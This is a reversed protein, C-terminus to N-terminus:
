YKYDISVGFTRPEGFETAAATGVFAFSGFLVTQYEKDTLNRGWVTARLVGQSGFANAREVSLGADLLGRSNMVLDDSQNSSTHMEGQYSYNAYGGVTVDGGVPKAYDLGVTYSQKPAFSFDKVFYQTLLQGTDLLVSRSSEGFETDVLGLSAHARLYATLAASIDGEFGKIKSGNIGFFDRDGPTSGTQLSAQYDDIDMYFVASNFTVRRDLFSGKLGIEYSKVKEPEFGIALNQPNASRQSTGGTKYGSVYKAYLNIADTLDYAISASPNFKSFNKAYNAGATVGNPVCPQQAFIFNVFFRACDAPTFGGLAAFSISNENIRFAAREDKSYRGGVTLHLREAAAPTWTLEGFAAYSKDNISTFDQGRPGLSNAVINVNADDRYYYLGLVYSLKGASIKPDGLLQLEQSFTNFKTFAENRAISGPAGLPAVLAFSPVARLETVASFLPLNDQYVKSDVQRYASISRLTMTESARWNLTLAHGSVTSDNPRYDFPSKLSTPRSSSFPFNTYTTDAALLIPGPILPLTFPPSLPYVGNGPGATSVTAPSSDQMRAWDAGYDATFNENPKWRVDLRAGRRDQTAFDVGLGTNKIWGDRTGYLASVRAAFQDGLPINLALRAHRLNFNGAQVELDASSKGIEPKHTILNVAGGTSNRGYLTGQPGRLVEIRELDATEFAAGVSTGIYVGDLYLAVSPDQTLQVDNQGIGRIFLRVTDARGNFNNIFLNPVNTAFDRLGKYGAQQLDKETFAAISIPVDKLSQERMQATVVVEELAVNATQETAAHALPMALLSAAGIVKM